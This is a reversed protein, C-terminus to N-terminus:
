SSKEQGRAWPRMPPMAKTVEFATLGGYIRFTDRLELMAGWWGLYQRRAAAIEDASPRLRVPCYAVADHVIAGKRNRRAVPQWGTAGLHAADETVARVGHQNSRTELPVIRPKVHAMCDPVGGARALEAIWIAMRRGGHGEPLNALADAVQDADPHPESSGGGEIRCGLREHEAILACSSRTQAKVGRISNIPDFNLSAKERQFAWGVLELISVQTKLGGRGPRIASRAVMAGAGVSSEMAIGM